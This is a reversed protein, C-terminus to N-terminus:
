DRRTYLGVAFSTARDTWVGKSILGAAAAMEGFGALTYKCSSETHVRELPAFCISEGAIMVEQSTMSELYMEMRGLAENYIAVHRFADPDFGAGLERNLRVLLNLNFAATIGQPDDYALRLVDPDKRLDYGILLADGSNLIGRIELLLRCADPPDFNGISSGAYFI